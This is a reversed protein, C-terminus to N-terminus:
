IAVETLRVEKGLIAKQLNGAKNGNILITPIKTEKTLRLSEKVKHIMGGTVDTSKSGTIGKKVQNFNRSNIEPITKGKSDYVGDTDGCEIIKEIKYDKRLKRALISLTKEASHITFGKEIDFVVDGYILPVFGLELSKLIPELFAKNSYTFSMPSFSVALIGVRLFERLVIRNIDVATESTLSFGKLSDRNIIGEQTKYKSAITHGFSGSGHGIIFGTNKLRNKAEKIEEALRKIVPIKATFPKGKDTIVSGGLKILILNKVM